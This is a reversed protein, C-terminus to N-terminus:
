DKGGTETNWWGWWGGETNSVRERSESKRRQRQQMQGKPEEHSLEAVSKQCASFELPVFLQAAKIEALPPPPPRLSPPFPLHYLSVTLSLDSTSKLGKMGAEDRRNLAVKASCGVVAIDCHCHHHHHTGMEEKGDQWRWVWVVTHKSLGFSRWGGVIVVGVSPGGGDGGFAFTYTKRM